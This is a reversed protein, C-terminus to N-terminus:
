KDGESDSAASADVGLEDALKRTQETDGLIEELKLELDESRDLDALLENFKDRTEKLKALAPVQQILQDPEFDEITKFKLQVPMDSGDAQLTNAVRINLEPAMSAMVESFNERDINTFKRESLRKPKDKPNGSFDGMVGMVFPLERKQEAGNTTVEYQIQVRERRGKNIKTAM